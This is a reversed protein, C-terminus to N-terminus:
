DEREAKTAENAIRERLEDELSTWPWQKENPHRYPRVAITEIVFDKGDATKM